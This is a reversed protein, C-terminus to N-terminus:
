RWLRMLAWIVRQAIACHIVATLTAFDFHPKNESLYQMTADPFFGTDHAYLLNKGDKGILYIFAEAEAQHGAPLPTVDYGGINVTEFANLRTINVYGMEKLKCVNPNSEITEVVSSSGYVNLPKDTGMNSFSPGRMWFEAPYLHDAHSHTIIINQIKHLPLGYNLVHLYTDAPFDILLDDNIMSQSRTRINKGGLKRTAECLDCDCYLAPVGEAAATGYFTIKM